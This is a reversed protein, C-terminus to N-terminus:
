DPYMGLVAMCTRASISIVVERRSSLVIFRIGWQILCETNRIYSERNLTSACGSLILITGFSLYMCSHTGTPMMDAHFALFWADFLREGLLFKSTGVTVM